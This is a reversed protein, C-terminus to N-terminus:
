VVETIVISLPSPLPTPILFYPFLLSATLDLLPQHHLRQPTVFPLSTNEKLNQLYPPLSLIIMFCSLIVEM